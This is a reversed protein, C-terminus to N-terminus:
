SRCRARASSTPSAPIKRTPAAASRRTPSRRRTPSISRVTLIDGVQHARQDKFFARSGNRWLSNPNYSAPQPAPMPMQVPKYGPQATPNEIASLPPQEGIQKLRDIRFLRRAAGFTLPSPSILVPVSAFTNSMVSVQNVIRDRVRRAARHQSRRPHHGPRARHRHGPHDAELPHEARERPRGRHGLELAQGRMTLVIGPVEYHLLVMENKKVVEPKMLDANRLAQGPAASARARLGSSASRTGAARRLIRRAPATRDIVDGQKIRRRPWARANRDRGRGNRVRQRYLAVATRSSALEFTIDFRGAAKDYAIRALAPKM